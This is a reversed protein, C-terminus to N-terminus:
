TLSCRMYWILFHVIGNSVYQFRKSNYQVQSSSVVLPFVFSVEGVTGGFCFLIHYNLYESRKGFLVPTPVILFAYLGIVDNRFFIFCFVTIYPGAGHSYSEQM